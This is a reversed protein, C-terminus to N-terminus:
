GDVFFDIKGQVVDGDTSLIKYHVHYRGPQLPPAAVEIERSAKPQTKAALISGDDKKISVTSYNADALLSFQLTVKKLPFNIHENRSPFSDVLYGHAQAPIATTALLGVVALSTYTSFIRRM